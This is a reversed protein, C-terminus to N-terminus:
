RSANAPVAVSASRLMGGPVAVARGGRAAQHASLYADLEPDRLMERALTLAPASSAGPATVAPARSLLPGGATADPGTMRALVLVGAVAVFGAAVASPVVWRPTRRAPLAPAVVAVPEPALVVPESALRERLRNLFAADAPAPRALEDSRLVDGILHYAHWARRAGEDERWARCAATADEVQGDAFASLAERSTADTPEAPLSPDHPNM